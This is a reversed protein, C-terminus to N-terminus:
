NLSSGDSPTPFQGKSYNNRRNFAAGNSHMTLTVTEASALNSTSLEQIIEVQLERARRKERGEQTERILIDFFSANRDNWSETSRGNSSKM